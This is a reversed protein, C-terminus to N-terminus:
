SSVGGGGHTCHRSGLFVRGVGEGGEEAEVGRGDRERREEEPKVRAVGRQEERAGVVVLRVRVDLRNEDRAREQQVDTGTEAQARVPM